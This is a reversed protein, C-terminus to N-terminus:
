PKLNIFSYMQFSHSEKDPARGSLSLDYNSYLVRLSENKLQLCTVVLIFLDVVYFALSINM